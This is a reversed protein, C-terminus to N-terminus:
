SSRHPLIEVDDGARLTGSGTDLLRTNVTARYFHNFLKRPAWAPLTEQRRAAFEKQFGALSEGTWPDRSPVVCRQCPNVGGWEVDGIRFPRPTGDETLLRDEWFPEVGEVVLNVRLRQRMQAATLGPFWSAMVELSAQSIITPGPSVTDDPFGQKGNEILRASIGLVKSVWQNLVDTPQDVQWCFPPVSDAEFALRTWQSDAQLRLRHMLATRKANWFQDEQDVFAWRRDKELAGSPLVRTQPVNLGPLSKVPFIVIASLHAM